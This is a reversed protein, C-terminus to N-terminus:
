VAEAESRFRALTTRSAHGGALIMKLAVVRNLGAQRAKYVVGVAGRGLEAQIEYGPVARLPTPPRSRVHGSHKLADKLLQVITSRDPSHPRGSAERQALERALAESAEIISTPADGFQTQGHETPDDITRDTRPTDGLQTS